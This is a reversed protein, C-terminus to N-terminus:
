GRDRPGPYALGFGCDKLGERHELVEVIGHGRIPEMSEQLLGLMDNSPKKGDEGLRDVFNRLDYGCNWEERPTTDRLM